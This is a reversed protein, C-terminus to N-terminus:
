NILKNIHTYGFININLNAILSASRMVLLKPIEIFKFIVNIKLM